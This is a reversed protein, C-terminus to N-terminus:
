GGELGFQASEDGPLDFRDLLEQVGPTIVGLDEAIVPLGGLGTRLSDLLDAGPGPVWRGTAATAAGAPVEWYAELGRFHDIRVIDVQEALRRVREIWWSYGDEAHRDWRYIPNSWLQGTESFYDPPVGAVVRPRGAPDLEFLEPDAWVDASDHRRLDAPRGGRLGLRRRTPAVAVADLVMTLAHDEVQTALAQRAYALAVPDRRALAPDWEIWAAEANAEKLALFLSFDDLWSRQGDCWSEFEEKGPRGRRRWRDAVQRLMERKFQAVRPFDVGAGNAPAASLDAMDLWGQEVLDRLSILLPNGAFTSPSQYPSWGSGVPGLPLFQWLGCGARHMWALWDRAATGLDGIGEGGPLSTIHLLVGASRTGTVRTSRPPRAPNPPLRRRLSQGAEGLLLGGPRRPTPHRALNPTRFSALARRIAAALADVSPETFVIGTGAGATQDRVTDLLGGTAHVIPVAGYRMAIMQVLGCPEYRSPVVVMDSAGYLRRGFSEHYGSRFRV